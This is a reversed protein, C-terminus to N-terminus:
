AELHVDAAAGGRRYKLFALLPLVLLFLIGALLFLKDFSLVMSQRVTEGYVSALAAHRASEADFGRAMLGQQVLMLRQQAVTSTESVHSALAARAVTANTGILSGFVALGIAGGL